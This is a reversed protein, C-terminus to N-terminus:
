LHRTRTLTSCEKHLNISQVSMGLSQPINKAEKLIKKRLHATVSLSQYILHESCELLAAQVRVKRKIQLGCKPCHCVESVRKSLMEGPRPACM